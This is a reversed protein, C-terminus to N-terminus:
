DNVYDCWVTQVEEARPTVVYTLWKNDPSLTLRSINDTSKPKVVVFPAPARTRRSRAQSSDERAQNRQGFEFLAVQERKLTSNLPKDKAAERAVHSRTIQRITGTAPDAGWLDGDDLWRVEREDESCYPSMGGAKRLVVRESGASRIRLEGRHFWAARRGDRTWAVSVPIALADEQSVAEVKRGDRSVRWWPTEPLVSDTMVVATDYSFYLWRGDLDWRATGPSTGLWRGETT